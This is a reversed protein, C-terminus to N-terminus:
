TGSQSDEPLISYYWVEKEADIEEFRENDAFRFTFGLKHIVRRSQHNVANHRVWIETAGLDFATKLLAVAAEPIYGNGWHPEGLWYGLEFHGIAEPRACPHFGISGIPEDESKLTVAYQMAASLVNRIIERSEDESEHVKWGCMPGIRPDSAYRYCAAADSERWPRLILRETEITTPFQM